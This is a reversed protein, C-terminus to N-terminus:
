VGLDRSNGPEITFHSWRLSSAELNSYHGPGTLYYRNRLSEGDAITPWQSTIWGDEELTWVGKEFRGRSMRLFCTGDPRLFLEYDERDYLTGILTNGIAQERIDDASLLKTESNLIFTHPSSGESGSARGAGTVIATGSALGAGIAQRRTMEGERKSM